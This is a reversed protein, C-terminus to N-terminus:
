CKDMTVLCITATSYLFYLEFIFDLSIFLYVRLILRKLDINAIDFYM